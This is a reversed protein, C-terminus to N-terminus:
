HEDIKTSVCRNLYSLCYPVTCIDRHVSLVEIPGNCYTQMRNMMLSQNFPTNGNYKAVDVNEASVVGYYPERFFYNVHIITLM